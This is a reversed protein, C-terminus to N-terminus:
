LQYKSQTSWTNGMGLYQHHRSCEQYGEKIPKLNTSYTNQSMPIAQQVKPWSGLSYGARCEFNEVIGGNPGNPGNPGNAQEKRQLEPFPDYGGMSLDSKPTWTDKVTAFTSKQCSCM